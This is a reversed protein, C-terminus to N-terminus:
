AVSCSHLACSADFTAIYGAQLQVEPMAPTLCDSLQADANGRHRWRVLWVSRCGRCPQMVAGAARHPIQWCRSEFCGGLMLELGQGM